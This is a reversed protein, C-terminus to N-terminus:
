SRVPVICDYRVAKGAVSHSPKVGALHPGKVPRKVVIKRPQASLAAQLLAIEDLPDTPCELGHILQFKKKVAASKTRGPFMPDLYVVDPRAGPDAGAPGAAFSALTDRSDGEVLHMRAVISALSADRSARALADALLAAIVPDAECLTVKFGAAALLFSDEGLGATADVARPRDVGKVRAAKVLMERQLAGQKIRPLMEAFDPRLEMGDRALALGEGTVRLHLTGSEPKDVLPAALRGALAEAEARRADNGCVVMIAPVAMRSAGETTREGSVEIGDVLLRNTM